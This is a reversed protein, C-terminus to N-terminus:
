PLLTRSHAAQGTRLTYLLYPDKSEKFRIFQLRANSSARRWEALTPIEAPAQYAPNYHTTSM